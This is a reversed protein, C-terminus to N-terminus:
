IEELEIRFRCEDQEIVEATITGTMTLGTFEEDSYTVTNSGTIAEVLADYITKPQWDIITIKIKKYFETVVLEGTVCDRRLSRKPNENVIRGYTQCNFNIGGITITHITPNEEESM